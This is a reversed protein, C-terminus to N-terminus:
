LDTMRKICSRKKIIASIPMGQKDRIIHRKTQGLKSGDTPNNWTM